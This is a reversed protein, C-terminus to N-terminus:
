SQCESGNHCEWGCILGASTCPSAIFIAPTQPLQDEVLELNDSAVMTVNGDVSSARLHVHVRIFIAPTQPLQDAVLELNDSAVM